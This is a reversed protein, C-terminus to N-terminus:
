WKWMSYSWITLLLYYRGSKRNSPMIFATSIHLQRLQELNIKEEEITYL